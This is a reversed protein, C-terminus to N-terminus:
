GQTIPLGATPRCRSTLVSGNKPESGRREEPAAPGTLANRRARGIRQRAKEATAGCLEVGLFRRGLGVAAAGASGTGAMPDLVLDGPDTYARVIRRLLKLPTQCGHGKVREGFTGCVRSVEWVDGPVRGLKNARKDKYTTQRASPVRVDDANFTFRRADAAFVHIMQWSPAFKKKQHPGFDYSWVVSNRWHLGGRKLMVWVEAQITQGCQVATTGTSSLVRLAARFVDEIWRFSDAQPRRDRYGPYELGINFPSNLFVLSASGAPLTPLVALCDGTLITDATDMSTLM